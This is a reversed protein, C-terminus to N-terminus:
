LLRERRVLHGDHCPPQCIGSHVCFEGGAETLRLGEVQTPMFLKDGAKIEEEHEYGDFPDGPYYGYIGFEHWVQEGAEVEVEGLSITGDALAANLFRAYQENTVDTVMIEYDYDVDTM